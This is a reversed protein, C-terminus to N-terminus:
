CHIYGWHERANEFKCEFVKEGLLLFEFLFDRFDLRLQSAFPRSGLNTRKSLFRRGLFFRLALFHLRDPRLSPRPLLPSLLMM